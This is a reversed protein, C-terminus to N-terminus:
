GHTAYESGEVSALYDRSSVRSERRCWELLLVPAPRAESPVPGRSPTRARWPAACAPQEPRRQTVRGFEPLLGSEHAEDLRHAGCGAVCRTLLVSGRSRM